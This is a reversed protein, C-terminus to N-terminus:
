TTRGQQTENVFICMDQENGCARLFNRLCGCHQLRGINATNIDQFFDAEKGMATLFLAFCPLVGVNSQWIPKDATM